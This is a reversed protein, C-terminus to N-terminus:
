DPHLRRISDLWATIWGTDWQYSKTWNDPVYWLRQLANWYRARVEPDDAADKLDHSTIIFDSPPEQPLRYNYGYRWQITNIACDWYARAIKEEAARKEAPWSDPVYMFDVPMNTRLRYIPQTSEGVFLGGSVLLVVFVLLKGM